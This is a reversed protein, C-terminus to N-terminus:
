VTGHTARDVMLARNEAQVEKVREAYTQAVSTEDVEPALVPNAQEQDTEPPAKAARALGAAIMLERALAEAQEPTLPVSPWGAWSAAVYPEPDDDETRVYVRVPKGDVRGETGPEQWSFTPVDAIHKALRAM